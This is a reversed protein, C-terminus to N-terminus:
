VHAMEPEYGFQRPWFFALLAADNGPTAWKWISDPHGKIILVLLSNFPVNSVYQKQGSILVNNCKPFTVVSRYVKFM